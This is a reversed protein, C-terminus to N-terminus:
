RSPTTPPRAPRHLGAALHLDRRYGWFDAFEAALFLPAVFVQLLNDTLAPRRGEVAHGALQVAWGVAFLAAAAVASESPPWRSVGDAVWLMALGFPAAVLAMRWDLLLYYGLAAAVVAAAPTAPLGGADLRVWGLPVLLGVIVLPVGLFHSAANVPHRHYSRYSRLQEALSKV